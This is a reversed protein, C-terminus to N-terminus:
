EDPREADVRSGKRKKKKRKASKEALIEDLYSTARRKAPGAPAAPPASAGDPRVALADDEAGERDAGDGSEKGAEEAPEPGGVADQREGAGRGGRRAMGKGGFLAGRGEDETESDERGRTTRRAPGGDPRSTVAKRGHAGAGGGHVATAAAKSANRGLLQRRLADLSPDKRKVVGRGAGSATAAAGVGLLENGARLDGEDDDDDDDDGHGSERALEEQTKPPLWSAILRQSKALAVSARTFVVDAESPESSKKPPAM